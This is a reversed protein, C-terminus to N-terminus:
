WLLGWVFTFITISVTLVLTGIILMKESLTTKNSKTEKITFATQMTPKPSYQMIMSNLSELNRIYTNTFPKANKDLKNLMEREKANTEIKSAKEFLKQAKKIRSERLLLFYFLLLVGVICSLFLFSSFFATISNGGTLFKEIWPLVKGGFIKNSTAFNLYISLANNIFHIIIGPVISKSIVVTMAILFGLITTYFFQNVNLHLLGFMLSSLIVAKKIGMTAYGSLLMGRHLNEECIAPLVAVLILNIILGLASNTTEGSAFTPASEYGFLQIISSFFSAIALNLFYCGLGIVIACIISLFSIKTYKFEKFTQKFTQKTFTKFLLLPLIFLVGVQLIVAFIIDFAITSMFSFDLVDSLIYLLVLSCACILYILSAYFLKSKKM